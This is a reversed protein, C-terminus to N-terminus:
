RKVRDLLSRANAEMDINRLVCVTTEATSRRCVDAVRALSDEDYRSRHGAPGPLALYALKGSPAEEIKTPDVAAIADSSECLRMLQQRPWHPADIVAHPAGPPLNTLLKKVRMAIPRGFPVEDPVRFVLAFADLKKCFSLIAKLAQDVEGSQAFGSGGIAAPALVTFLFGEPAERQWRRISGMGPIGLESDAIEVGRFESLYRSAAIPFGSCAVVLM